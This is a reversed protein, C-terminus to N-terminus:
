RTAGADLKYRHASRPYNKAFEDARLSAQDNKGLRRLAEIAIVEREQALVGGPFRLKHESTLSLAHNPNAALAGRARELLEVEIENSSRPAPRPASREAGSPTAEASDIGSAAASATPEIAVPDAPKEAAPAAPLARPEPVSKPVEDNLNAVLVAGGVLVALAAGLKGLGAASSGGSASGGGTPGLLPGLKLSLRSLEAQTPLDRAGADFLARLESPAGSAPDTLRLPDQESM